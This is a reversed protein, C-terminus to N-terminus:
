LDIDGLYLVDDPQVHFISHGRTHGPAHITRVQVGGLDFVEGHAFGRADARPTFHFREVVVRAFAAATPGDFGYIAMLGDLSRIGVLDADPLHWAAAPYLHNGAVHDEHCHSNLVHDAPPAGGPRGVLALSPDIVMAEERGTVLLPRGEPYKGGLRSGLLTLHPGLARDPESMAGRRHARHHSRRPGPGVDPWCWARGGARRSRPRAPPRAGGSLRRDPVGRAARRPEAGAAAGRPASGRCWRDPPGRGGRRAAL